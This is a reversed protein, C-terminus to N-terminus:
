RPPATSAGIVLEAALEVHLAEIERRNVLRMLLEVGMRAMEDIPQRVTTLPPQVLRSLELSDFGVVSLDDPVSLGMQAAARMVGVAIKDNFAVIASPREALSLLSRAVATGHGVDPETVYRVFEPRALRGAAALAARYGMLRDDSSLQARPGAVMAISSHGLDILHQTAARAGAMNAVSVSAVDAPPTSRPDILVFPYDSARLASLVPGPEPPLVLIAGETMGSLLLQPLSPEQGDESEASLVLRKGHQRLSRAIVSVVGGFYEDLAYPCRVAVLGQAQPPRRPRRWRTFSHREIAELVEGRTKASVGPGNNLVRSVTAVSVGAFSAIDGMTPRKEGQDILSSSM